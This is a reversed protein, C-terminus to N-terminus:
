RKQGGVGDAVAVFKRVEYCPKGDFRYDRLEQLKSALPQWHPHEVPMWALMEPPQDPYNGPNLWRYQWIVIEAVARAWAPAPAPAVTRRNPAPVFPPIAAHTSPCQCLISLEGCRPCNIQQPM